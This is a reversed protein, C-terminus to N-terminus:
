FEKKTRGGGGRNERINISVKNMVVLCVIYDCLYHYYYYYYYYYALHTGFKPIQNNTM